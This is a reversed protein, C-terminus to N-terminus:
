RDNNLVELVAFYSSDVVLKHVWAGVIYRLIAGNRNLGDASPLVQFIMDRNIAFVEGTDLSKFQVFKDPM